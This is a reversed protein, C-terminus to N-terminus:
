FYSVSKEKHLISPGGLRPQHHIKYGPPLLERLIARDIETALWTETFGLCKFNNASLKLMNLANKNNAAELFNSNDWKPTRFTSIGLCESM